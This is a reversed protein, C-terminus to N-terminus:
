LPNLTRFRIVANFEFFKSPYRALAVLAVGLRVSISHNQVIGSHTSRETESEARMTSDEKFHRQDIMSIPECWVKRLLTVVM